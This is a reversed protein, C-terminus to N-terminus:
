LGRSTERKRLEAIRRFQLREDGLFTRDFLLRKLFVHARCEWTLGMGGHVQVV